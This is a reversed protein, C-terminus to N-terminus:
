LLSAVRWSLWVPRKRRHFAAELPRDSLPDAVSWRVCPLMIAQAVHAGKFSVKM